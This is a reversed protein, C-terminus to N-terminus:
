IQKVNISKFGKISNTKQYEYMLNEVANELAIDYFVDANKEVNEPLEEYEVEVIFVKKM